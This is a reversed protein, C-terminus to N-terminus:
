FSLFLAEIYLEGVAENLEKLLATVAAARPRGVSQEDVLFNNGLDRQTVKEGDVITFHGINGLVLNKLTEAGTASANLLCVRACELAEQGHAGWIRLQRDYKRTKQDVGGGGAATTSM